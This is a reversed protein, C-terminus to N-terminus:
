TSSIEYGPPLTKPDVYNPHNKPYTTRLWKYALVPDPREGQNPDLSYGANTIAQKKEALEQELEAVRAEAKECRSYVPRAMLPVGGWALRSLRLLARTCAAM